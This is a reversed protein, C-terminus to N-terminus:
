VIIGMERLFEGPRISVVRLSANLDSSLEDVTVEDLFISRDRLCISPICVTDKVVFAALSERIDQATMLGAIDIGGGFFRNKVVCVNLDVGDIRNLREAFDKIVQSALEGTVLTASIPTSVSQPLLREAKRAEHLFLRVTGVGDELQPFQEYHSIGPFPKEAKFYWEDSLWVFRTGLRSLYMRQRKRTTKIMDSAYDRDPSTLHVLRERFQTLGVPVVAVSEVGSRLGTQYPHEMALEELTRALDAGDNLGPCLVVQAHVSIRNEALRRLHPLIPEPHNKGLLLGRLDPDTAHVSVYLPSLRQEIIREFEQESLNTLTIYTGHMFSLRFDDDMLYLSHRMRKPMQHIFCFVCKNVCTHIKDALDDEFQIGADDEEDKRLRFTVEGDPTEFTFLPNRVSSHFQYDLIDLIPRDNISKLLFGPLIRKRSAPSGEEVYSVVLSATKKQKLIESM